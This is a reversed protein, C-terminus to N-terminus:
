SIWLKTRVKEHYLFVAQNNEFNIVEYDCCNIIVCMGYFSLFAALLADADLLSGFTSFFGM